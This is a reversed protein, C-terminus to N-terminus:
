TKRTGLGHGKMCAHLGMAKPEKTEHYRRIAECKMSECNGFCEFEARGPERRM